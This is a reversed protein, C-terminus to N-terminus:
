AQLIPIRRSAHAHHVKGITVLLLGDVYKASLQDPDIEGTFDLRRQFTGYGIERSLVFEDKEIIDCRRVGRLFLSRDHLSLELDDPHVGPLEITVKYTSPTESFNLRPIFPLNQDGSIGQRMAKPADINM